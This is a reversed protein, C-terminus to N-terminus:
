NPREIKGFAYIAEILEKRTRQYLVRRESDGDFPDIVMRTPSPTDSYEEVRANVNGEKDVNFQLRSIGKSGLKWKGSIM